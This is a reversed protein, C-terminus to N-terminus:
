FVLVFGFGCFVRTPGLSGKEGEKEPLEENSPSRDNSHRGGGGPCSPLNQFWDGPNYGRENLVERALSLLLFAGQFPDSSGITYLSKSHNVCVYRKSFM